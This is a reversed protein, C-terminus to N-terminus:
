GGREEVWAAWRARLATRAREYGIRDGYHGGLLGALVRSGVLLILAYALTAAILSERLAPIGLVILLGGVLAILVGLYAFGNVWRREIAHHRRLMEIVPEPVRDLPRPSGNVVTECHSCRASERSMPTYCHGCFRGRNPAEGRMVALLHQELRESFLPCGDDPRYRQEASM